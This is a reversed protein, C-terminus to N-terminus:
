SAADRCDGRTTRTRHSGFDDYFYFPYRNNNKKSTEIEFYDELRAAVRFAFGHKLYFM